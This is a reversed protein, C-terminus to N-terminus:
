KGRAPRSSRSKPEESREHVPEEETQADDEETPVDYGEVWEGDLDHSPHLNSPKGYADYVIEDPSEAMSAGAHNTKPM